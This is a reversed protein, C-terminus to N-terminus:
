IQLRENQLAEQGPEQAAAEEDEEAQRRRVLASGRDNDHQDDNDGPDAHHELHGGAGRRLQGANRWRWSPLLWHTPQQDRTQEYDNDSISHKKIFYLYM